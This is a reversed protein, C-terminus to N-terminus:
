VNVDSLQRTRVNSYIGRKKAWHKVARLTLRFAQLAACCGLLVAACCCLLVASCCCLLVAACCCLLAAACCRLLVAACCRLLGPSPSRCLAIRGQSSKTRDELAERAISLALHTMAGVLQVFWVSTVACADVVAAPRLCAQSHTLCPQFQFSGVYGDYGYPSCRKRQGRVM